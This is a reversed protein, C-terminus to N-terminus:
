ANKLYHRGTMQNRISPDAQMEARVQSGLAIVMDRKARVADCFAKARSSNAEADILALEVAHMRQDAQVRGSVIKETVKEGNSVADARVEADIAAEIQDRNLKALAAAKQADAFAAGWYALDAPVRTFEEELALPEITVCEKLYQTVEVNGLEAPATFKELGSTAM